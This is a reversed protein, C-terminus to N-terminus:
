KKKGKNKSRPLKISGVRGGAAAGGGVGGAGMGRIMSSGAFSMIGIWIMPLVITMSMAIGYVLVQNMQAVLGKGAAAYVATIKSDFWFAIAWMANVFEFAFYAIAIQVFTKFKYQQILLVIPAAIILIMQIMALIMPGGVKMLQMKQQHALVERWNFIMAAGSTLAAFFEKTGSQDEKLDLKENGATIETESNNLQDRALTTIKILLDLKDSTSAAPDVYIESAWDLWDDAIDENQVKVYTFKVAALSSHKPARYGLETLIADRLSHDPRTLATVTGNKLVQGEWLEHCYPHTTITLGSESERGDKQFGINNFSSFGGASMYLSEDHYYKDPESLFVNSGIWDAQQVLTTDAPQPGNIEDFKKKAPRFCNDTFDSIRQDLKKTFEVQALKSLFYNYDNSCGISKIVTHTIASSIYEVAMWGIPKNVELAQASTGAITDFVQDYASDTNGGVGETVGSYNCDSVNLSYQVTKLSFDAGPFPIVCFMLVLLMGGISVELNLVLEKSDSEEWAMKFISILLAIFPILALGTETLISWIVGYTKWGFMLTYIELLNNAVM